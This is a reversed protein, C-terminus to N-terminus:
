IDLKEYEKYIEKTEQLYINMGQPDGTNTNEKFPIIVYNVPTTM